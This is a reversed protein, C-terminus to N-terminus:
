VSLVAGMVLLLAGVMKKLTVPDKPSGLAGFHSVLMAMMIQGSVILIFMRRAGIKPILFTTGLIMFASVVGTLFLYSPVKNLSYLTRFDGFLALVVLSTVLAILFFIVNTTIPSGVYHSIMSNMPLYVALMAGMTFALLLM